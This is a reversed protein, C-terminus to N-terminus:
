DDKGQGRKGDEFEHEHRVTSKGNVVRGGVVVRVLWEYDVWYDSVKPDDVPDHQILLSNNKSVGSSTLSTELEQAILGYCM